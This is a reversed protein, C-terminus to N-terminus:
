RPTKIVLTEITGDDNLEVQRGWGCQTVMAGSSMAGRGKDFRKGLIRATVSAPRFIGGGEGQGEEEGEPSFCFESASYLGPHAGSATWHVRHVKGNRKIELSASAVGPDM